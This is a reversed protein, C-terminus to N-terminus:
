RREHHRVKIFLIQLFILLFGNSFLMGIFPSFVLLFAYLPALARFAPDSSRRFMRLSLGVLLGFVFVGSWGFNVFADVVFVVNANGFDNWGGFQYEFVLRELNIREQGTLTAVLGSTAGKLLVGGFQTAHVVLTDVATFIPVALSRYVLFQWSSSSTFSVSFFDALNFAASDDAGYGALSIMTLILMLAAGGAYLLHKKKLRASDLTYALVPILLNLFLVKVLFSVAFLLFALALVHRFRNKCAYAFVICYPVLSCTFISSLYLLALWPGTRGKLFEGREGSLSNADSGAIASLLPISPATILTLLIYGIFLAGVVAVYTSANIVLKPAHGAVRRDLWAIRSGAYIGAIALASQAALALYEEREGVAAYVFLPGAIYLLSLALVLLGRAGDATLLALLGTARLTGPRRWPIPKALTSM